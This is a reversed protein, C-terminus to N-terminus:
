SRESRERGGPPAVRWEQSQGEVALDPALRFSPGIDLRLMLTGLGPVRASRGNM